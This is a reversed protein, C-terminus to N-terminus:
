FTVYGWSLTLSNVHGCISNALDEFLHRDVVYVIICNLINLSGEGARYLILCEILFIVNSKFCM